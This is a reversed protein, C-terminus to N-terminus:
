ILYNRVPSFLKLEHNVQTSRTVRRIWHQQAWLGARDHQRPYVAFPDLVHAPHDWRMLEQYDTVATQARRTILKIWTQLQEEADIAVLGGHSFVQIRCLTKGLGVPQLIAMCLTDADRLLLLNPFCWAVEAEDTVGRVILTSEDQPAEVGALHQALLKWDCDVEQWHVGLRMWAAGDTLWQRLPSQEVPPAAPSADLNVWVLAGSVSVQVPILREPRLGLYQHMAAGGAEDALLPKRDLSYGCSTFSCHTKSGGQCQDPVTRCGGHQAQNFAGRLSGDAQRQVHIGHNGLTYPLVDGAGPMDQQSGICIWERTWLFEDELWSVELSRYASLPLMAAEGVAGECDAYSAPSRLNLGDEYYGLEPRRSM